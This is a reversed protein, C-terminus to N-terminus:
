FAGPVLLRFISLGNLVPGLPEVASRISDNTKAWGHRDVVIVDGDRLPPNQESGLSAAPTFALTRRNISGTPELRLLELTNRNGRRTIGGASMVAQSLPSNARVQQPGPREVEGIVNVTITAPAFTSSAVAILESEPQQQEAVPVVVSDGDYILPNVSGAASGKLVSWFDVSVTRPAGGAPDPRQITVRRLDGRATLGGAKQIAEVLTPWGSSQIAPGAAKGDAASLQNTETRSISYLGPRQVEGTVSVRLPRTGILDLYVSPRRLFRTYGRTIRDRAQDITLGWVPVSGLRPLNVTGDPLVEAQTDYGEMKFLSLRLRDGPGLRYRLPSAASRPPAVQAPPVVALAPLM